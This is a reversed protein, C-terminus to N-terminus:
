SKGGNQLVRKIDNLYKRSVHLREGNKLTAEMRSNALSKIYEVTNINLICSKNIQVFGFNVLCEALQYLRLDSRYVSKELYIFTMKDVSEIFFIDSANVLTEGHEGKCKIQNDVSQLLAVLREVDKNEEAYRILIEIDTCTLDQEIKVIM